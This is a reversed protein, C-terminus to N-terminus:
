RAAEKPMPGVVIVKTEYPGLALPFTVADGAATAGELPHIEGSM